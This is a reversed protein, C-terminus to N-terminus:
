PESICGSEDHRSVAAIFRQMVPLWSPLRDLISSIRVRKGDRSLSWERGSPMTRVECEFAAALEEVYRRALEPPTSWAAADPWLAGNREILGINVPNGGVRGSWRLILTAPFEACIGLPEAASILRELARRARRPRSGRKGSRM